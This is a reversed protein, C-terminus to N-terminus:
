GHDRGHEFVLGRDPVLPVQHRPVGGDLLGDAAGGGGASPRISWVSTCGAGFEPGSRAAPLPNCTPTTAAGAHLRGRPAVRPRVWTRFRSCRGSVQPKGKM